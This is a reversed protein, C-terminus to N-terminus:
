GKIMEAVNLMMAPLENANFERKKIDFLETTTQEDGIPRVDYTADQDGQEGHRIIEFATDHHRKEHKALRRATRMGVVLITVGDTSAIPFAVRKTDAGKYKGKFLEPEGCVVFTIVEGDETLFAVDCGGFEKVKDSWSM